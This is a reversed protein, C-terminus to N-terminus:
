ENINEGDQVTEEEDAAADAQEIEAEEKYNRQKTFKIDKLDYDKIDYADGKAIKVRVSEKLINLETVTGKGDPTTVEKGVKPMTKRIESYMDEEYRLCCMLKGCFGSLKFTNLSLNQEKASKIAVPQFDGLFSNCCLPRGCLGLGGLLKAEDRSGIQRLEIRTKFVAALDKVLLRFDVRKESSFYFLIKVNDFTYECKVLKMPLQHKDIQEQCIRMAEAERRENEKQHELDAETAMRLVPKLPAQLEEAEIKKVGTVVEGYEVGRVTEVIVADGASPWYMGPDFYYLKGANRFRVGIVNVM